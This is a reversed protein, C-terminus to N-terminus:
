KGKGFQADRKEVFARRTEASDKLEYAKLTYAQESLYKQELNGDEVGTLSLKALKIMAPSKAAIKRAIPPM